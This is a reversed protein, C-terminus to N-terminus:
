LPPYTLVAYGRKKRVTPARLGHRQLLRGLRHGFSAPCGLVIASAPAGERARLLKHANVEVGEKDNLAGVILDVPAEAAPDFAVAHRTRIEGGFGDARLNGEAARLSLLDRSLLEMAEIRRGLRALLLPLHGQGPNWVAARSVKHQTLADAAAVLLLETNWSLTDFEPLGYVSTARYTHRRWRFEGAARVYPHPDTDIEGSFACRFIAHEKRDIRALIDIHPHSLVEAVPEALPAVVVIWLEGGARLHTAAGHLIYRHVPPGAKAPLNSLIADYRETGVDEYALGGSATIDGLGNADANRRAYAAALADRDIGHVNAAIGTAALHLCIPGYGCGLDLVHVWKPQTTAVQRLLATTGRDIQFSSFGTTPLQVELTRPGWRPRLTKKHYLDLLPRRIDPPQPM